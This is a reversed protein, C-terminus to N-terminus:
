SLSRCFNIVWTRNDINHRKPQDMTAPPKVKDLFMEEFSKNSHPTLAATSNLLESISKECVMSSNILGPPPAFPYPGIENVLHNFNGQSNCNEEITQLLSRSEADALPTSETTNNVPLPTTLM